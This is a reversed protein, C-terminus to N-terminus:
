EQGVITPKKLPLRDQHGVREVLVEDRTMYLQTRTKPAQLKPAAYSVDAVIETANTARCYRLTAKMTFVGEVCGDKEAYPGEGEDKDSQEVRAAAFRELARQFAEEVAGDGLIELTLPDAKITVDSM